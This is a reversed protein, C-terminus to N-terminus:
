GYVRDFSSPQLRIRRHAQKSAVTVQRPASSLRLPLEVSCGLTLDFCTGIKYLWLEIRYEICNISNKIM